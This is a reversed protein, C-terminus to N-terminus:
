GPPSESGHMAGPTLAGAGRLNAIAREVNGWNTNQTLIAGVIVEFKSRAPWWGQAGYATFLATFFRMLEESSNKDGKRNKKVVDKQM